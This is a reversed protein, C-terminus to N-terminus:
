LDVLPEETVVPGGTSKWHSYTRWRVKLPQLDALPDETAIPGGISRWHSYTRWYVKFKIFISAWLTISV